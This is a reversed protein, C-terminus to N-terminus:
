GALPRGSEGVSDYSLAAFAPVTRALEAFSQSADSPRAPLGLLAALRALIELDPLAEGLPPVAAHIRQVRGQVNTFTGEKEAYVAAPLVVDALRATEHDWSGQFVVFPV